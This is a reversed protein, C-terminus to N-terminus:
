CDPKECFDEDDNVLPDGVKNKIIKGKEDVLFLRELIYKSLVAIQTKSPEKLEIDWSDFLGRRIHREPRLGRATSLLSVYTDVTIENYWQPTKNKAFESLEDWTKPENKKRRQILPYREGNDDCLPWCPIFPYDLSKEDSM